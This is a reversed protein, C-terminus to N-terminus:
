KVVISYRACLIKLGLPTDELLQIQQHVEKVSDAEFYEKEKEFLKSQLNNKHSKLQLNMQNLNEIIENKNKMKKKIKKEFLIQKSLVMKLFNM